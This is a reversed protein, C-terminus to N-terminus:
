KKEKGSGHAQLMKELLDEIRKNRESMINLEAKMQAMEEDQKAKEQREPNLQLLLKNCAEIIVRHNEVSRIVEESRQVMGQLENNMAEKTAALVTQGNECFYIDTDTPVSQYTTQQPQSDVTINVATRPPYGYGSMPMAMRDSVMSVTVIELKPEVGKRLIYIQSNTRINAFSM